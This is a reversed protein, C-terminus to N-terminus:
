LQGRIRLLEKIEPDDSYNELEGMDQDVDVSVGVGRFFSPCEAAFLGQKCEGYWADVPFNPNLSKLCDIDTGEVTYNSYGNDERISYICESCHIKCM